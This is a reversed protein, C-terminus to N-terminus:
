YFPNEYKELLDFNKEITECTEIFKTIDVIDLDFWEGEKRKFSYINHLTTEVKRGHNSLFKECITCKGSNGTQIAKIRKKLTSDNRSYGIKYRTEYDEVSEIM